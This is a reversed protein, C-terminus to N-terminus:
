PFSCENTLPGTSRPGAARSCGAAARAPASLLRAVREGASPIAAVLARQARIEDIVALALLRTGRADYHCCDDVYVTEALRDFLQTLDAAAIGARRAQGIIRRLEPYGASVFRHLDANSRRHALEEGSFPKSGDLYQNPQLFHFVAIGLAAGLGSTLRLVSAYRELYRERLDDDSEGVPSRYPRLGRQEGDLDARARREGRQELAALAQWLLHGFASSRLVPALFPETIARRVARAAHLRCLSSAQAPSVADQVLPLWLAFNPFDAPYGGEGWFVVENFGEVFIAVDITDAYELFAFLSQPQRFGVVAFCLVTVRAYGKDITEDRLATELLPAEQQCMAEAVSGGFIGVVLEDHAARYPFDARALFGVNNTADGAERVYGLFPHLRLGGSGSRQAGGSALHGDLGGAMFREKSEVLSATTEGRWVRVVAAAAGEALGIALALVLAARGVGALWRGWRRRGGHISQPPRPEDEPPPSSRRIM